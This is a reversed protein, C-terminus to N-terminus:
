SYRAPRSSKRGQAQRIQRKITNRHRRLNDLSHSTSSHSGSVSYQQGLALVREIETNTQRLQEQLAQITM